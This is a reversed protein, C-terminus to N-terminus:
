IVDHTGVEKFYLISTPKNPTDNIRLRLNLFNGAPLRDRPIEVGYYRTYRGKNTYFSSIVNSNFPIAKGTYKTDLIEVVIDYVKDEAYYFYESIYFMKNKGSNVFPIRIDINTNLTFQALGEGNWNDSNWKINGNTNDIGDNLNNLKNVQWHLALCNLRCINYINESFAMQTIYHDNSYFTTVRIKRTPNNTLDIPIPMWEFVRSQNTNTPTPSQMNGAIRNGGIFKGFNKSYNGNADLGTVRFPTWRDSIVQIWLLTIEKEPIPHNPVTIEYGIDNGTRTSLVKYIFQGNWLKSPYISINGTDWVYIYDASNIPRIRTNELLLNRLTNNNWLVFSSNYNSDLIYKTNKPVYLNNNGTLDSIMTANIINLMDVTNEDICKTPSFCLKNVNNSAFTFNFKDWSFDEGGINLKGPINVNQFTSDGATLAGAFQGTTGYIKAGSIDNTFIGRNGSIDGSFTASVGNYKNGTIDGTLRVNKGYINNGSIDNTITASLGKINDTFIAKRGSYDEGTIDGTFRGNRGSYDEGTIDGTFRGNRGSYDQGTIDGTFRGNRGSYDRGTIDGTFRGNRGSYDEGTIDGTFRGNRGSYDQGTIDGTFIGNRGSVNGSFIGEESNIKGNTDLSLNNGLNIKNVKLIGGFDADGTVNLSNVKFNGAVEGNNSLNFTKAKLNNMIEANNKVKLNADITADITTNLNKAKLDGGFIGNNRVTLGNATVNGGFDATSYTSITNSLLNADFRSNGKINVSDAKLNAGIEANNTVNLTNTKLNRSFEGDESFIKIFKIDPLTVNDNTLVSAFSSYAERSFGVNGAHENKNNNLFLYIVLIILLTIIILKINM